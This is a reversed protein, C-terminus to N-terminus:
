TAPEILRRRLATLMRSLESTLDLLPQATESTLYGLRESIMVYTELESRKWWNWAANGSSSIAIRNSEPWRYDKGFDRNGIGM